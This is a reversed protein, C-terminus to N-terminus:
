EALNRHELALGGKGRARRDSGGDHKSSAVAAGCACCRLPAARFDRRRLLLEAVVDAVVIAQDVVRLVDVVELLQVRLGLPHDDISMPLVSSPRASNVAMMVDGSFWAFSGSILSAFRRSASASPRVSSAPAAAPARRCSPRRSRRRGARSRLARRAAASRSSRGASCWVSGSVSRIRFSSTMRQVSTLGSPMSSTDFQYM